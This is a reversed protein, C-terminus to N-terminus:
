EKKKSAVKKLSESYNRWFLAAVYGRWPRMSEVAHKSHNDLARALILDSSPFADTHRLVKLAMYQATWPGIGKISLVKKLFSDVDQTSELFLRGDIVAQSFEKLTKKRLSTTKLNGLDADVIQKPTPFLKIKKGNIEIGSDNGAIDILDSVLFKAREVSVLQGLITSIAVEFPEWGSPLRIGPYAKLLKKIKLDSELVNALLIPDSDLDFMNRVRSIITHIISTDPFNIELVLSSNKSDNSIEIQGVKEMFTIVRYMKKDEFWELNGMQHTKYTKLLGEFDFPPRYPLLVRIGESKISTSHRTDRPSHKFREKYAENFRRISKFGSAFAVETCSLNTETLLKRALNLRIEFALQKPTKGVEEVFLRRLHRATVGFRESFEDENFEITEMSNLNKIARQVIATKGIWVPSKPSAEPHCRMCPRYGAVEAENMSRFFEVNKRKPKAPCIPRCYIGTTKVGVFFKGDFRHDRAMMAEYFIDAESKKMIM